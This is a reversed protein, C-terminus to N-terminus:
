NIIAMYSIQQSQLVLIPYEVNKIKAHRTFLELLAGEEKLNYIHVYMYMQM